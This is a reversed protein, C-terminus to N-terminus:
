EFDFVQYLNHVLHYDMMHFHIPLLQYIKYVQQKNDLHYYTRTKKNEDKIFRAQCCGDGKSDPGYESLRYSRDHYGENIFECWANCRPLHYYHSNGSSIAM